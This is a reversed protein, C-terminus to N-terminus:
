TELAVSNAVASAMGTDGPIVQFIFTEEPVEKWVIFQGHHNGCEPCRITKARHTDPHETCIMFHLSCRLCKVKVKVFTSKDEDIKLWENHAALLESHKWMMEEQDRRMKALKNECEQQSKKVEATLQGNQCLLDDCQQRLREAEKIYSAAEPPPPPPPDQAVRKRLDVVLHALKNHLERQESPLVAELERLLQQSYSKLEKSTMNFEKPFVNDTCISGCRM